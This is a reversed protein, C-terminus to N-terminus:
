FVKCKGGLHKQLKRQDYLSAIQFAVSGQRLQFGHVFSARWKSSYSSTANESPLQSWSYTNADESSVYNIPFTTTAQFLFIIKYVNLIFFNLPRM